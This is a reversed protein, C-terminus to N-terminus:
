QLPATEAGDRSAATRYANIEITKSVFRVSGDAMAFQCGGPHMSGMSVDNFNNSGNYPTVNIGDVINKAPPSASASNLGRVWSRYTAGADEWSLEGLLFTNSTGDTIDKLAYAKNWGFVGQDAFQGHGTTGSFAYQVGTTTSPNKPGLVGPYHFTHTREVPGTPPTYDDATAGIDNMIQRSSPCLMTKLPTM